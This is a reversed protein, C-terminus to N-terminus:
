FFVGEEAFYTVFTGGGGGGGGGGGPLCEEQVCQKGVDSRNGATVHILSFINQPKKLGNM